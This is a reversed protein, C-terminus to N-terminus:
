KNDIINFEKFFQQNETNFKLEKFYSFNGFSDSVNMQGTKQQAYLCCLTVKFFTVNEM